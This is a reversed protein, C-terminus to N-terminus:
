QLLGGLLCKGVCLMVPVGATACVVGVQYKPSGAFWVWRTSPHALLGCGGPVQAFDLICLRVLVM